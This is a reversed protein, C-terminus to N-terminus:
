GGARSLVAATQEDLAAQYKSALEASLQEFEVLSGDALRVRWEGAPGLDLRHGGRCQRWRTWLARWGARWGEAAAAYVHHSCTVRFLCRRRWRAPVLRWYLRVVARLLAGGLCASPETAM